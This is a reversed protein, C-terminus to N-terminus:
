ITITQGIFADLKASVGEGQIKRRLKAQVANRLQLQTTVAGLEADTLRITYNSPRDPGPASNLFEMVVGSDEVEYGLFTFSAM